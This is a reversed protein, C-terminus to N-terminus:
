LGGSLLRTLARDLADAFSKLERPGYSRGRNMRSLGSARLDAMFDRESLRTRVTDRTWEDGRDNIVAIGADVLRAAFPIDRTVVLDGPAALALIRDDAEDAKGGEVVILEAGAPVPIPHNAAFVARIGPQVSSRAARRAILARVEPPLSDADAWITM